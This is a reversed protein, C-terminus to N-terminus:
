LETPKKSHDRQPPFFYFDLELQGTRTEIPAKHQSSKGKGMTFWPVQMVRPM